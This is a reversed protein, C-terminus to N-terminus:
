LDSKGNKPVNWLLLYKTLKALNAGNKNEGIM